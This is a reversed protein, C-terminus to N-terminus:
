ADVEMCVQRIKLSVSSDSLSSSTSAIHHLRNKKFPIFRSLSAATQLVKKNHARSRLFSEFYNETYVGTVFATYIRGNESTLYNKHNIIKILSISKKRHRM